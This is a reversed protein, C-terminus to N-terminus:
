KYLLSIFFKKKKKQVIKLFTKLIRTLRMMLPKLTKM